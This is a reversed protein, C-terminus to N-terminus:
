PARRRKSVVKAMAVVPMAPGDPPVGALGTPRTKMATAEALVVVAEFNRKVPVRARILRWVRAVAM